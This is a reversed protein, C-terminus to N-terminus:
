PLAAGLAAIFSMRAAQLGHAYVPAPISQVADANEHLIYCLIKECIAPDDALGRTYDSSSFVVGASKTWEMLDRGSLDGCKQAWNNADFSTIKEVIRKKQEELIEM